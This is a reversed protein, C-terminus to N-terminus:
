SSANFSVSICRLYGFNYRCKPQQGDVMKSFDGCKQCWPRRWKSFQRPSSGPSSTAQVYKPSRNQSRCERKWPAAAFPFFSDVLLSVKGPLTEAVVPNPKSRSTVSGTSIIIMENHSVRRPQLVRITRQHLLSRSTGRESLGDLSVTFLGRPFFPPTFDRGQSNARGNKRATQERTV